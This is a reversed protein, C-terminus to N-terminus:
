DGEMFRRWANRRPQEAAASSRKLSKRTESSKESVLEVGVFYEYISVRGESKKRSRLYVKGRRRVLMKSRLARRYAKKGATTSLTKKVDISFTDPDVPICFIRDFLTPQMITTYNNQGRFFTSKTFSEIQKILASQAKYEAETTIDEQTMFVNMVASVLKRSKETDDVESKIAQFAPVLFFEQENLNIGTMIRIYNKLAEDFVSNRIVAYKSVSKGLVNMSPSDVVDKYTMGKENVRGRGNYEHWVLKNKIIDELKDGMKVENYSDVPSFHLNDNFTFYKKTFVLDDFLQDRKYVALRIVYDKKYPDYIASRKTDDIVETKLRKIMGMPLGVTLINLNSGRKTRFRREKLSQNMTEIMGFKLRDYHPIPISKLEETNTSLSELMKRKLAIQHDNLGAIVAPGGPTNMLRAMLRQYRRNGEINFVRQLSIGEKVLRIAYLRLMRIRANLFLREEELRDETGEFFEMADEFLEQEYDSKDEDEYKDASVGGSPLWDVIGTTIKGLAGIGARFYARSNSYRTKSGSIASSRRSEFKVIASEYIQNIMLTMCEYFLTEFQVEKVQSFRSMREPDNPTQANFIDPVTDMTIQDLARSASAVLDLRSQAADVTAQSQTMLADAKGYAHQSAAEFTLENFGKRSQYNAQYGNHSRYFAQNVLRDRERRRAAAANALGMMRDGQAKFDNAVRTAVTHARNAQRLLARAGVVDDNLENGLSNAEAFKRPDVRQKATRLYGRYCSEFRFALIGLETEPDVWEFSAKVADVVLSTTMDKDKSRGRKAGTSAGVTKSLGSNRGRSRTLTRPITSLLFISLERLHRQCAEPTRLENVDKLYPTRSRAARRNRRGFQGPMPAIKLDFTQGPNALQGLLKQRDLEAKLEEDEELLEMLSQIDKLRKYRAATKVIQLFTYRAKTSRETLESILGIKSTEANKHLCAWKISNAMRRMVSDGHFDAHEGYLKSSRSSRGRGYSGPLYYMSNIIRTGTTMSRMFERAFDAYRSTDYHGCDIIYDALAVAGPTYIDRGSRSRVYASEFPLVREEGVGQVLFSSMGALGIKDLYNEPSGMVDDFFTASNPIGSMEEVLVENVKPLARAISYKSELSIANVLVRMKDQDDPSLERIKDIYSEYDSMESDGLLKFTIAGTGGSRVKDDIKFPHNDRARFTENKGVLMPSHSELTNKIDTLIQAIIKTNSFNIYNSKSYGADTLLESADDMSEPRRKARGLARQLGRRRREYPGSDGGMVTAAEAKMKAEKLRKEIRNIRSKRRRANRRNFDDVVRELQPKADLKYKTRNVRRVLRALDDVDTDAQKIIEDYAELIEAIEDELEPNEKLRELMESNNDIYAQRISKQAEIVTNVAPDKERNDGYLPEFNMQFIIEPRLKSVGRPELFKDGSQEIQLPAVERKIPRRRRRASRSSFKFKGNKSLRLKRVQSKDGSFRRRVRKRQVKASVSRKKAKRVQTRLKSKKTIKKVPM